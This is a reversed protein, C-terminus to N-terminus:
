ESGVSGTGRCFYSHGRCSRNGNPAFSIDSYAEILKEHRPIQLTNEPGYGEVEPKYHLWHDKTALLFGLARKGIEVVWSPRKTVQQGMISVVFAIDPRSRVSAWLLIGVYMQAPGQGDGKQQPSGEGQIPISAFSVNSGENKGQTETRLRELGQVFKQEAERLCRIRFLEIPDMLVGQNEM